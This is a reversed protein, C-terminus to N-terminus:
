LPSANRKFIKCFKSATIPHKREDYWTSKDAQGTTKAYLEQTAPLSVQVKNLINPANSFLNLDVTEECCKNPLLPFYTFGQSPSSNNLCEPEILHISPSVTLLLSHNTFHGDTVNSNTQTPVHGGENSSGNVEPHRSQYSIPDCSTAPNTNAMQFGQLQKHLLSGRAVPGTLINVTPVNRDEPLM